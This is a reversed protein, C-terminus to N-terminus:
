GCEAYHGLQGDHERGEDRKQLQAGGRRGSAEEVPFSPRTRRAEQPCRRQSQGRQRAAGESSSDFVLGARRFVSFPAYCLLFEDVLLRTLFSQFNASPFCVLLFSLSSLLLSEEGTKTKELRNVVSNDKVKVTTYKLDGTSHFGIQGTVMSGTKKLNSWMTYVIKVDNKKCGEISNAKVLQACDNLFAAIWCITTMSYKLFNTMFAIAVSASRYFLFDNHFCLSFSPATGPPITDVTMGKPLRLYVHASSLNEVHFWVDEPFGYKILDENEFKDRGM